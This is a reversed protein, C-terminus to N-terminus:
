PPHIWARGAKKPAPTSSLTTQKNMARVQLPLNLVERPPDTLPQSPMGLKVFLDFLDSEVQERKGEVQASPRDAKNLVVLPRLGLALAVCCFVILM